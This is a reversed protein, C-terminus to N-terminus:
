STEVAMVLDHMQVDEINDSTETPSQTSMAPFQQNKKKGGRGYGGCASRSFVRLAGQGFCIKAPIRSCLCSFVFDTLCRFTPCNQSNQFMM